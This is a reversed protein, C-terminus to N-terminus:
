RLMLPLMVRKNLDAGGIRVLGNQGITPIEVGFRDAAKKYEVTLPSVGAKLAKFTVAAIPGSGTKPETPNLQTFAYWVLGGTKCNDRSADPTNHAERKIVFGPQMFSNLPQIQIGAAAPDADQVEVLAPDFCMRIDAGYAAVVDQLYLNVVFTQGPQVDSMLPNPRAIATAANVMEAGAFATLVLLLVALTRGKLV